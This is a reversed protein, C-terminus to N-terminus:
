VALSDMSHLAGHIVLSMAAAFAVLQWFRRRIVEKRLQDKDSIPREESTPM